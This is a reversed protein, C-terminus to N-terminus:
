FYQLVKNIKQELESLAFNRVLRFQEKGEYLLLVAPVTFVLYRGAMEPMEEVDIWKVQLLAYRSFLEKLKPEIAHCVSCDNRQFVLVQLEQTNGQAMDAM